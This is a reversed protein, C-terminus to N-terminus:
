LKEFFFTFPKLQEQADFWDALTAAHSLNHERLARAPQPISAIASSALIM